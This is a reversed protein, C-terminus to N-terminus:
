RSATETAKEEARAGALIGVMGYNGEHCAYEYIVENIRLWPIAATWSRTWTTPDDVTFQYDVTDEDVRAFRETLHMTPSAGRFPAKASFNTTEVVLTTGEWHGRSDGLWQHIAQNLHPRGDLPIIRIEHMQEQFIGVYQPTQVIQYNNNYGSPIRPLPARIMYREYVSRAEPGDASRSRSPASRGEVMPPVRGDPPDVILSTRRTPVVTTGRDWWFQNYTGTDGERAPRDDADARDAAVRAEFEAAQEETLFEQGAFEDPRELSTITKNSFIGQIDPDGWATLPPTWSDVATQGVPM